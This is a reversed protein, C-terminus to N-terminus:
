TGIHMNHKQNNTEYQWEKLENLMMEYKAKAGLYDIRHQKRDNIFKEHADYLEKTVYGKNWDNM